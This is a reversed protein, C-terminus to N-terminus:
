VNMKESKDREGFIIKEVFERYHSASVWHRVCFIESPLAFNQRLGTVDYILKLPLASPVVMTPPDLLM